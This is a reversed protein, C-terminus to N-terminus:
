ASVNKWQAYKVPDKEFQFHGAAAIMAGNDTCYEIKEPWKVPLSIREAVMERL